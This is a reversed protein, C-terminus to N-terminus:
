QSSPQSAIDGVLTSFKERILFSTQTARQFFFFCSSLRSSYRHHWQSTTSLITEHRMPSNIFGRARIILRKEAYEEGHLRLENIFLLKFIHTLFEVSKNREASFWNCKLACRQIFSLHINGSIFPLPRSHTHCAAISWVGIQVLSCIIWSGSETPLLEPCHCCNLKMVRYWDISNFLIERRKALEFRALEFNM